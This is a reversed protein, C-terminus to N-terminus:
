NSGSRSICNFEIRANKKTLDAVRPRVNDYLLIIKKNRNVLTPRKERLKASLRELQNCYM